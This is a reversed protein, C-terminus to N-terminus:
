CAIWNARYKFWLVGQIQKITKIKLDLSDDNKNIRTNIKMEIQHKRRPSSNEIERPTIKFHGKKRFISTLSRISFFGGEACFILVQQVKRNFNHIKYWSFTLHVCTKTAHKITHLLGPSDFTTMTLSQPNKEM